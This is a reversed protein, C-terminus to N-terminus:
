MLEVTPCGLLIDVKAGMSGQILGCTQECAIVRTPAAPDDYYWGNMACEAASSVKGLPIADQGTAALQVNVKDFAVPREGSPEPLAFECDLPTEVVREVTETRTVTRPVITTEVRTEITVVTDRIRALADVLANADATVDCAYQAGPDCDEGGGAMAIRNLLDFNAGQLGVGFTMVGNAAGQSVINVLNDHNEECGSPDGDTVFVLICEEDPNQAEFNQCFQIGGRLGGEMPTGIGVPLPLMNLTNTIQTAQMPLRGIPVHPQDYGTGDCVGV